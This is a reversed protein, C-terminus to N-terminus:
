AVVNLAVPVDGFLGEGTERPKAVRVQCRPDAVVDSERVRHDIPDRWLGGIIVAGLQRAPEADLVSPRDHALRECLPDEFVAEAVSAGRELVDADLDNGVDFGVLQHFEAHEIGPVLCQAIGAIEDAVPQHM